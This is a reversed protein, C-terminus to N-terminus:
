NAGSQASTIIDQIDSITIEANKWYGTVCLIGDYPSYATVGDSEIIDGANIDIATNIVVGDFIVSVTDGAQGNDLAIAESPYPCDIVLAMGPNGVTTGSYYLVYKGYSVPTLYLGNILDPVYPSYDRTIEYLISTGVICAMSVFASSSFTDYMEMYSLTFGLNDDVISYYADMSTSFIHTLGVSMETDSLIVVRSIGVNTDRDMYVVAMVTQYETNSTIASTIPTSSPIVDEIVLTRGISVTGDVVLIEACKIGCSDYNENTYNCYTVIAKYGNAILETKRISPYEFGYTEFVYEDGFTIVDDTITVACAVSAYNNDGNSYVFLASNGTFAETIKLSYVDEGGFSVPEGITITNDGNVNVICASAHAMDDQDYYTYALIAKGYDSAVVDVCEVNTGFIYKNYVTFGTGTNNRQVVVIYGSNSPDRGAILRLGISSWTCSSQIDGIYSGFTTADELTIPLVRHSFAKGNACNVVDMAGVSSRDSVVVDLTNNASTIEPLQGSPIKGDILDAKASLRTNVKNWFYTLGTSDLFKNM